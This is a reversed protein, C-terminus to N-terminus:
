PAFKGLEGCIVRTLTKRCVVPALQRYLGASSGISQRITADCNEAPPLIQEYYCRYRCWIGCQFVVPSAWGPDWGTPTLTCRLVVPCKCQPSSPPIGPPLGPPPVCGYGCTPIGLWGLLDYNDLPDNRVLVYVNREGSNEELPDRTLWRGSSLNYYRYGYYLLGSEEDQCRTPFQFPNAKAMPGTARIVEGFPDYEHQASVRGGAVSILRLGNGESFSEPNCFCQGAQPVSLWVAFSLLLCPIQMTTKM